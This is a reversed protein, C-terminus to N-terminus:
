EKKPNTKYVQYCDWGMFACMGLMILLCLVITYLPWGGDAIIMRFKSMFNAVFGTGPGDWEINEVDLDIMWQQLTTTENLVIQLYQENKPDILYFLPLQHEHIGFMIAMRDDPDYAQYFLRFRLESTEVIKLISDYMEPLIFVFAIFQRKKSFHELVRSTLPPLLCFMNSTVFGTLSEISWNGDYEVSFTRSKFVSLKTVNSKHGVFTCDQFRVAQAAKKLVEVRPDLSDEFQLFFVSSLKTTQTEIELLDPSPILKLPFNLQKEVFSELGVATMQGEFPVSVNRQIDVFVVSPYGSVPFSKCFQKNTFCNSDGFIVVQSFASERVFEQWTPRFAKCHACFPDWLELVIPKVGREMSIERYNDNTMSISDSFAVRTLLCLM